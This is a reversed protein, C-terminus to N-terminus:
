PEVAESTSPVDSADDAQPAPPEIPSVSKLEEVLPYVEVYTGKAVLVDLIRQLLLGNIPYTQNKLQKVRERKQEDTM